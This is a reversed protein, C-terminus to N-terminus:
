KGKPEENKNKLINLSVWDLLTMVTGLFENDKAWHKHVFMTLMNALLVLEGAMAYWPQNMFIEM